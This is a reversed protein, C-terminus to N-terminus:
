LIPEDNMSRPEGQNPRSVSVEDSKQQGSVM